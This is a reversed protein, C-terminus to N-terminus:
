DKPKRPTTWKRFRYGGKEAGWVQKDNSDFGRDWSVLMNTYIVVECSAYAAGRLSSVCEKGQTSGFFNGADDKHLVIGCGTREILSDYRLNKLLSPDNWAGAFRLPENLEYVQSILTEKDKKYLHYIRQRYPKDTASAMAQEVYLWYGDPQKGKLEIERMHLHINHYTVDNKSQEETDFNGVLRNKLEELDNKNLQVQATAHIGILSAALFLLLKM